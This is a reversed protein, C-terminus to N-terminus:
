PPCPLVPQTGDDHASVILTTTGYVVSLHNVWGFNGTISTTPEGSEVEFAKIEKFGGYIIYKEFAIASARIPNSSKVIELPRLHEAAASATRAISEYEHSDSWSLVEDSICSLM